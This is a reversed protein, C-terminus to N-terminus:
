GSVPFPKMQSQCLIMSIKLDNPTIIFKNICSNKKLLWSSQWKPRFYLCPFFPNNSQPLLPFWSSFPRDLIFNSPGWFTEDPSLLRDQSCGFPWKWPRKLWNLFHVRQTSPRSILYHVIWLAWLPRNRFLFHFALLISAPRLTDALNKPWLM